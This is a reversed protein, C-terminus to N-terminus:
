PPSIRRRGAKAAAAATATSAGPAAAADGDGARNVVAYPVNVAAAGPAGATVYRGSRTGAPARACTNLTEVAAAPVVVSSKTM